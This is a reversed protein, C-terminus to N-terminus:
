PCSSENNDSFADDMTHIGSVVDYADRIKDIGGSAIASPRIGLFLDGVRGLKAGSNGFISEGLFELFSPSDTDNLANQIAIGSNVMSLSGHSAAIFGGTFGVPATPGLVPSAIIAFVGASAEATSLTFDVLGFGLGVFDVLGTPDIARLPNGRVYAYTNLGGVM